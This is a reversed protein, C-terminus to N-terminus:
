MEKMYGINKEKNPDFGLNSFSAVIGYIGCTILSIGFYAGVRCKYGAPKLSTNNIILAGIWGLFFTLAFRVGNKGDNAPAASVGPNQVGMNPTSAVEPAAPVEPTPVQNVGNNMDENM